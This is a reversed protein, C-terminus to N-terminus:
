ACTGNVKDQRRRGRASLRNFRRVIEKRRQRESQRISNPTPVSEDVAVQADIGDVEVSAYPAPLEGTETLKDQCNSTGATIPERKLMRAQRQKARRDVIKKILLFAMEEAGLLGAPMAGNSQYERIAREIVPQREEPLLAIMEKWERDFRPARRATHKM